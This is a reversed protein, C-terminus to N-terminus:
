VVSKRDETNAIYVWQPNSGSPYFAIGYPRNLGTTAFTGTEPPKSAGATLRFVRIANAASDAVFLDGNPAIRANRPNRIGSAILEASFGDPVLPHAGEPMKTVEAHNNASHLLSAAPLDQATLHRRVGPKDKRWDGFAAAGRLVGGDQAALLTGMVCAIAAAFGMQSGNRMVIRRRRDYTSPFRRLAWRHLISSIASQQGRREGCSACASPAPASATPPRPSAFRARRVPRRASSRSRLVTSRRARHRGSRNSARRIATTPPWSEDPVASPSPSATTRVRCPSDAATRSPPPSSCSIPAM